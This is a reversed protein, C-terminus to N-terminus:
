PAGGVGMPARAACAIRTRFHDLVAHRVVDVPLGPRHDAVCGVSAPSFPLGLAGYAAELVARVPGADTVLLVAGIHFGNRTVRQAVGALKTRGAANVSFAGPCYEDPVAGVSAEVGLDALTAVIATAVLEFRLGIDRRPEPHPAVLDIVLAGDHYAALRGGASRLTPAFGHARVADAAAPYTPLLTDRRSFAATPAPRHVRLWGPGGPRLGALAERVTAMDQSPTSPVGVPLLAIPSGGFPEATTAHGVVPVPSAPTM